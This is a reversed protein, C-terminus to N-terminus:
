SQLHRTCAFPLYKKRKVLFTGLVPMTQNSNAHTQASLASNFCTVFFINPKTLVPTDGHSLTFEQTTELIECGELVKGCNRPNQSGFFAVKAKCLQLIMKNWVRKDKVFMQMIEWSKVQKCM